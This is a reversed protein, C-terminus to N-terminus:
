KTLNEPDDITIKLSDSKQNQLNIFQIKYFSNESKTSVLRTVKGNNDIVKFYEPVFYVKMKVSSSGKVKITDKFLDADIRMNPYPRPAGASSIFKKVLKNKYFDFSVEFQASYNSVMGHADVCGICYIFKSSTLFETDVKFDDDVHFLLPVTSYDIFSLEEGTMDTRNGDVSENSLYKKTSYDFCKQKILEFPEDIASRRFVQFQKIDRQSNVPMGWVVRLKRKKYDWIFNLDVPPPPPVYEACEVFAMIPKSSVLYTIERIERLDNDFGPSTIKAVTRISYYYTSGYKVYVDTFQTISPNEIVFTKDKYFGSDIKEYREVIYGITDKFVSDSQKPSLVKGISIPQVQAENADLVQKNKSNKYQSNIQVRTNELLNSKEFLDPAVLSNIQTRLFVKQGSVLRDFGSTNLIKKGENDYFSINLTESPRDAIKEINQIAQRIQNKVANSSSSDRAEASYEKLLNGVYKDINTAQSTGLDLVGDNNIDRFADELSDVNSYIYSFFKSSTFGDESVIKSLNDSIIKKESPKSYHAVPNWSVTVFRPVRLTFNTSESSIQEPSKSKLFDPVGSKENTGEDQVYFNYTFKAQIETVEPVDVSFVSSSPKSFSTM